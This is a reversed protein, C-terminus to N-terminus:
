MVQWLLLGALTKADFIKGDKVMQMIEEKTFSELKIFEGPDTHQAFKHLSEAVYIHIIENTFAPTTCVPGLYTWEDAEYGTEESLERKACTLLEEGPDLKGAPLEYLVSDMPYRCQKVLVIKGNPEVAIVAIAGPHKIYERGTKKGDPLVIEDAYVHLLKGAFVKKGSVKKEDLEKDHMTFM